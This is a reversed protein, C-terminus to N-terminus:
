GGHEQSAAAIDRHRPVNEIMSERYEEPAHDRLFELQPAGDLCAVLAGGSNKFHETEGHAQLAAKDAYREVLVFNGPEKCSTLQYMECGDENGLVQEALNGM